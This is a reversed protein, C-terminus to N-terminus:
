TRKGSKDLLSTISVLSQYSQEKVKTIGQRAALVEYATVAGHVTNLTDLLRTNM